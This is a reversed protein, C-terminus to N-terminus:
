RKLERVEEESVPGIVTLAMTQDAFLEAALQRIQEATVSDIGEAIEETSVQRGFFIENRALQNM